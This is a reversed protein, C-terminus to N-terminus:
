EKRNMQLIIIIMMMQQDRINMVARIPYIAISSGVRSSPDWGQFPRPGSYDMLLWPRKLCYKRKM